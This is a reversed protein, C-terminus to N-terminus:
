KNKERLIEITRQAVFEYNEYLSTSLGEETLKKVFLSLDNIAQQTAQRIGGLEAITPYQLNSVKDFRFRDKIYKGNCYAHDSIVVWVGEQLWDHKEWIGVPEYKGNIKRYVTDSVNTEPLQYPEYRGKDNKIYLKPKSM